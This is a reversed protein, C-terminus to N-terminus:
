TMHLADLGLRLRLSISAVGGVIRGGIMALRANREVLLMICVREVYM